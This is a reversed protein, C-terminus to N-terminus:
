SQYSSVRRSGVPMVVGNHHPVRGQPYSAPARSSSYRRLHGHTGHPSLLLVGPALVTCDKSGGDKVFPLTPRLHSARETFFIGFM